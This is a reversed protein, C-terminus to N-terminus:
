QTSETHKRVRLVTRVSFPLQTCFCVIKSFVIHLL